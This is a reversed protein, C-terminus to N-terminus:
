PKCRSRFSRTWTQLRERANGSGSLHVSRGELQQSTGAASQGVHGGRREAAFAVCQLALLPVGGVEGPPVYLRRPPPASFIARSENM